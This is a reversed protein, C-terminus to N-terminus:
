RLILFGAEETFARPTADLVVYRINEGYLVPGAESHIQKNARLLTPRLKENLDPWPPFNRIEGPLSVLSLIRPVTLPITEPGRLM